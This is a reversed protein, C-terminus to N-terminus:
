VNLLQHIEFIHKRMHLNPTHKFCLPVQDVTCQEKNLLQMTHFITTSECRACSARVRKRPPRHVERCAACKHIWGEGVANHKCVAGCQTCLFLAENSYYMVFGLLDVALVSWGNNCSTCELTADTMCFRFKQHQVNKNHLCCTICVHLKRAHICRRYCNRFRKCIAGWQQQAINVPLPAFSIIQQLHNSARAFDEPMHPYIIRLEHTFDRTNTHRGKSKTLYQHPHLLIPEQLVQRFIDESLVSADMTTVQGLTTHRCMKFKCTRMCRDIHQAASTDLAALDGSSESVSQRFSDCVTTYTKLYLATSPRKDLIAAEVPMYAMIFSLVFEMFCLKVLNPVRLLWAEKKENSMCQISHLAAYLKCRLQFGPRKAAHEFLGLLTASMVSVCASCQSSTMPTLKSNETNKMQKTRKINPLAEYILLYILCNPLQITPPHNGSFFVVSHIYGGIDPMTEIQPTDYIRSRLLMIIDDVGSAAATKAVAPISLLLEVAILRDVEVQAGPVGELISKHLLALHANLGGHSSFVGPLALERAKQVAEATGMSRSQAGVWCNRIPYIISNLDRGQGACM